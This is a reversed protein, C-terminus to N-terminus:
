VIDAFRKEIRRFYMLGGFFGVAAVALSIGLHGWAFPKGFLASRYADVIGAMPNLFLLWRWKEPVLGVPYIVPTVYRFQRPPAVSQAM